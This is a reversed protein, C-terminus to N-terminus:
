AAIRVEEVKNFLSVVKGEKANITVVCKSYSYYDNSYRITSVAMGILEM